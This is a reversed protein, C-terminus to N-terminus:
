FPFLRLISFHKPKKTEQMGAMWARKVFLAFDGWLCENLNQAKQNWLFHLACFPIIPLTYPQEKKATAPIRRYSLLPM